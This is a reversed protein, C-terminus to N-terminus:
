AVKEDDTRVRLKQVRLYDLTYNMLILVLLIFLLVSLVYTSYDVGEAAKAKNLAIERAAIDNERATLARDKATLEATYRNLETSEVGAYMGVATAVYDQTNQSIRATVPAFLGSDFLLLLALTLASTRLVVHYLSDKM